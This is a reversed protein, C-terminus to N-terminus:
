GDELEVLVLEGVVSGLRPSLVRSALSVAPARGRVERWDGGAVLKARCGGHFAATRLAPSRASTLGGTVSARSTRARVRASIPHASLSSRSARQGPRTAEGRVPRSASWM